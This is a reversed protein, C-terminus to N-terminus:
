EGQSPDRRIGIVKMGFAKALRALHSGIRGMGVVLLTKGGLEDERQGLDGIMGRWTKKHQNDRAEPLRRFIALILAIAHEAVARANVGAASCLRVGKASLQEKSYQDMGSSISQIFKLKSAPAILDNKWMGSVVVVDAEGVRKQFDDYNWVQFNRIGTQRLDFRAQMQYAAHAFCITLDQKAPFM